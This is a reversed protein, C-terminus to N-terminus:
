VIGLNMLVSDFFGFQPNYMYRFVAAAAYTSVSWPLIVLAALFKRGKFRENLLLAGGIALATSLATVYVTYQITRLISSRLDANGFAYAYNDLGVWEWIGSGVDIYHLSMWFSYVTPYIMIAILILVVPVILVYAFTAESMRSSNFGIRRTTKAAVPMEGVTA